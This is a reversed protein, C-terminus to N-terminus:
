NSNLKEKFFQSIFEVLKFIPYVTLASYFATPILQGMLVVSSSIGLWLGYFFYYELLARIILVGLTILTCNIVKNHILHTTLLGIGVGWIMFYLSNFGFFTYSSYDSLIGIFAGFLGGAFEGERMAVAVFLPALIMPKIDFFELLHPTTQIVLMLIGTTIYALILLTYVMTKNDKIKGVEM